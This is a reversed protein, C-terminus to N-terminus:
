EGAQVIEDCLCNGRHMAVGNEPIFCYKFNCTKWHFQNLYFIGQSGDTVHANEPNGVECALKKLCTKPGRCNVSIENSKLSLSPDPIGYRGFKKLDQDHTRVDFPTTDPDRSRSTCDKKSGAICFSRAV